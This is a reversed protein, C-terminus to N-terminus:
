PLDSQSPEPAPAPQRVPQPEPAPAPQPAPEPAPVAELRDAFGNLADATTAQGAEVRSVLEEFAGAMAKAVKILQPVAASAPVGDLKALEQAISM